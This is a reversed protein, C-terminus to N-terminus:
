KLMAVYVGDLAEALEDKSWLLNDLLFAAFYSAHQYPQLTKFNRLEREVVEKYVSFQQPDVTFQTMKSMIKSLLIAEKHNYGSIEVQPIHICQM